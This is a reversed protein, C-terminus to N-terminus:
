SITFGGIRRKSGALTTLPTPEWGGAPLNHAARDVQGLPGLEWTGNAFGVEALPRLGNSELKGSTLKEFFQHRDTASVSNGPNPNRSTISYGWCSPPGPGQM